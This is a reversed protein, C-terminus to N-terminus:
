DYEVPDAVATLMIIKQSQAMHGPDVVTEKSLQQLGEPYVYMSMSLIM